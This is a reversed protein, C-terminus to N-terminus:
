LGFRRVEAATTFDANMENDASKARAVEGFCEFFFSVQETVLTAGAPPAQTLKTRVRHAQTFSLDPLVLEGTADDTIEYTDNGVYPLGRVTANMVTSKSVWTTGPKLPFRLFAIPTTYVVLTKGEPPSPQHSAIGLLYLATDDQVYVGDLTQAADMPAVFQGTPFSSAFWQGGLASAAITLKQDDALDVGMNWVRHGSSDVSGVVDVTRTKGAPSVLYKVAVGLVAKVESSDIQGDLNPVCALPPTVGADYAAHDPHTKNDGVCAGLLFLTASYVRKM